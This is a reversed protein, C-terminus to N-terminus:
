NITNKQTEKKKYIKEIIKLKGSNFLETFYLHGQSIEELEFAVDDLGPSLENMRCQVFSVLQCHSIM